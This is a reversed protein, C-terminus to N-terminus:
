LECDNHSSDYTLGDWKWCRCVSTWLPAVTSSRNVSSRSDTTPWVALPPVKVVVVSSLDRRSSTSMECTILGSM